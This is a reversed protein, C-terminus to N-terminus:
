ATGLREQPAGGREDVEGAVRRQPDVVDDAARVLREEDAQRVMSGVAGGTSGVLPSAQHQPDECEIPPERAPLVEVVVALVLCESAEVLQRTSRIAVPPHLRVGRRRVHGAEVGDHGGAVRSPEGGLEGVGTWSRRPTTDENRTSM